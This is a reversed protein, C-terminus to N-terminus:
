ININNRTEQRLESALQYREIAKELNWMLLKQKLKRDVFIKGPNNPPLGCFSCVKENSKIYRVCAACLTLELRVFREKSNM